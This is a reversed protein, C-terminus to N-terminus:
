DEKKMSMNYGIKVFDARYVERIMEKAEDSLDYYKVNNCTHKMRPFNKTPTSMGLCLREFDALESEFNELKVFFNCSVGNRKKSLRHLITRCKRTDTPPKGSRLATWVQAMYASDVNKELYEVQREIHCDSEAMLCTKGKHKSLINIVHKSMKAPSPCVPITFEGKGYKLQYHVESIVRSGPHRVTCLRIPTEWISGNSILAETPVHWYSCRAKKTPTCFMSQNLHVRDPLHNGPLYSLSGVKLNWSALALAEM